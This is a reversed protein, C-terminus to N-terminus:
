VCTGDAYRETVTFAMLLLPGSPNVAVLARWEDGCWSVQGVIRSPCIRESIARRVEVNMHEIEAWERAWIEAAELKATLEVIAEDQRRGDGHDFNDNM